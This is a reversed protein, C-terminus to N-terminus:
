TEDKKRFLTEYSPIDDLWSPPTRRTWGHVHSKGFKYYTRYCWYPDTYFTYHDPMCLPFQTQAYPLNEKMFANVDEDMLRNLCNPHSAHIKFFRYTYEQSLHFAHLLTWFWNEYSSRVWVNMPHNIHTSRYLDQTGMDSGVGIDVHHVGTSLMQCCEILIKGLHADVYDRACADPDPHLHFINLALDDRQAIHQPQLREVNRDIPDYAM